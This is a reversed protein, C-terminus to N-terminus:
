GNNVLKVMKSWCQGFNVLTLWKLDSEHCIESLNKKLKQGTESLKKVMKSSKRGTKLLTKWENDKLFLSLFFSLYCMHYHPPPSPFLLLPFSTKPSSSLSSSLYFFTHWLFLFFSFSLSFNIHSFFPSYLFPLFLAISPIIPYFTLLLSLPLFPFSLFFSFPQFSLDCVREVM